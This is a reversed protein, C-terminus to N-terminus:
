LALVEQRCREAAVECYREEIEIGIARRNLNKAARLTSGSGAFPDLILAADKVRLISWQLLAVPKQTPHARNGKVESAAISYTFIRLTGFDFNTWAMEGDAFHMGRIGKDWVLPARTRGLVDGFYNGGWVIAYKAAALVLRFTEADPAVDRRNIADIESLKLSNGGTASWSGIGYPPDTLCLDAKPLATLIERCDGHYLTVLSDSYYPQM